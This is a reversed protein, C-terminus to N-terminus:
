SQRGVPTKGRSRVPPSGNGMDVPSCGESIFIGVAGGSGLLGAISRRGYWVFVMDVSQGKLLLSSSEGRSIEEEM